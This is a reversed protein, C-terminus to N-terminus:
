IKKDVMLGVFDTMAAYIDLLKKSPIERITEHTSDDVVTVYYENLKEHFEFKLSTYAPQLFQNLGKVVQELKEKEKPNLFKGNEDSPQKNQSSSAQTSNQKSELTSNTQPTSVGIKHSIHDLM